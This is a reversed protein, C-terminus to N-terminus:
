FMTGAYPAPSVAFLRDLAEVARRDSAEVRGTQALQWWKVGGLYAASVAAIGGTVSATRNTPEVGDRSLRLRTTNGFLLPDVIELVVSEPGDYSRAALATEADLLRLWTEDRAATIRVSRFDEFLWPLIDDVPRSWLLIRHPLDVTLLHSILASYDHADHAVIDDVVITRESSVFWNDLGVPHYRVFGTEEGEPGCVAVYASAGERTRRTAQLHWWYRSRSITGPRPSPQAAYIQAQLPWSGEIDVLRVADTRRVDKRLRARQTDIEFSVSTSAIGYGFHEYIRADSARLTAVAEGQARATRLQQGFLATAIGRRTHTPLVGVHTVAAHPLRANGPVVIHGSYSDTTGVIAGDVFAGFTREPQFLDELLADDISGLPPLGVMATRFTRAAQALEAKDALLRVDLTM